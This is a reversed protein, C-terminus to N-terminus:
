VMIDPKLGRGRATLMLFYSQAQYGVEAMYSFILFHRGGGRRGGLQRLHVAELKVDKRHPYTQVYKCPLRFISSKVFSLIGM